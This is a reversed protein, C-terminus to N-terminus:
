AKKTFFGRIKNYVFQLKNYVMEEEVRRGKRNRYLMGGMIPTFAAIRLFRGTSVNAWDYDGLGDYYATRYSECKREKVAKLLGGDEKLYKKPMLTFGAGLGGGTHSDSSGIDALGATGDFQEMGDFKGALDTFKERGLGVTEFYPHAAVAVGDLEHIYKVAEEASVDPFSRDGNKFKDKVQKNTLGKPFMGIVHGDRTSVEIAPLTYLGEKEAAELVSDIPGLNDHNTLLLGDLGREKATRFMEGVSKEGDSGVFGKITLSFASHSHCDIAAAEEGHKELYQKKAKEVETKIQASTPAAM